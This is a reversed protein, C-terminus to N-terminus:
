VVSKRDRQFTYGFGWIAWAVAIVWFSAVAGVLIVALGQVIFSVVLSLRRGYTDAFAGTPIEFVFVTAEMVTGILVLQLPSMHVVRVFYVATVVFAPMSLAFELGYYLPIARLKM